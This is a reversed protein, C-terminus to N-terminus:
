AASGVSLLLRLATITDGRGPPEKGAPWIAFANADGLSSIASSDRFTPRASRGTVQLPIVTALDSTPLGAGERLRVEVPEWGPGPQRSLKRLVPLLLWYGNSLCSTPHGPMGIVLKRGVAAALTPKGPRIAIGHFLLRGLRPFVTPLFDREGVSSGGTVLVLDSRALSRRIASEIRDARDPVPPVPRATAGSAEVVASLTANNSEYIEGPGLRRGPLRLENGNPLISVVPRAWVSVNSTGTLSLAGLDAPGLVRGSTVVTSGKALDEGREAIRDRPHVPARIELRAGSVVEEFRVVADTGDPLAGGTAIAVAEGPGVRGRYGGEAYVEGVISLRTPHAPGARSTASARLAYGDWTARPFPPVAVQARYTRSVVRGVAHTVPVLERREIPVIQDLLSRLARPHPLLRGFPRMRM